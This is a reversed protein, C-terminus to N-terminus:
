VLEDDDDSRNQVDSKILGYVLEAHQRSTVVADFPDIDRSSEFILGEYDVVLLVDRMFTSYLRELSEDTGSPPLEPNDKVTKGWLNQLEAEMDVSKGSKSARIPRQLPRFSTQGRCAKRFCFGPHLYTVVLLIFYKYKM